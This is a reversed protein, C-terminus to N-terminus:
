ALMKASTLDSSLVVEAQIYLDSDTFEAHVFYTKMRGEYWFYSGALM